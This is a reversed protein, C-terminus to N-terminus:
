KKCYPSNGVYSRRENARITYARIVGLKKCPPQRPVRNDKPHNGFKRKNNANKEITTEQRIVQNMPNHTMRIRTEYIVIAEIADPVRQAVIQDIEVSNM